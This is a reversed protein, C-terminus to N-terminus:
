NGKVAQNAYIEVGDSLPTSAYNNPAIMTGDVIMTRGVLGHTDIVTQVTDGANFNYIKESNGPLITLSYQM